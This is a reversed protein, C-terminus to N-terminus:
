DANPLFAVYATVAMNKRGLGVSNDSIHMRSNM